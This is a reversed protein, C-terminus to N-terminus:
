FGSGVQEPMKGFISGDFTRNNEACVVEEFGGRSPRYTVTGKWPTSFTGSDDVRFVVELGKGKADKVVRYREVVHIKDTHPTGYPDVVSIPDTKQGITDVVLTDEEYHGVSEGYWSPRVKESHKQNLWIWRVQHDRQYIMVIHDKEQLLEVPERLNLVEPVGSPWCTGHATPVYQLRQEKEANAKVIERAWPQLIPNNYDGAEVEPNDNPLKTLPKGENDGPVASFWSENARQWVGAFDPQELASATDPAAYLPFVPFVAGIGAAAAILTGVILPTKM